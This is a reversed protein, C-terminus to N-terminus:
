REARDTVEFDRKSFTYGYGSTDGRSNLIPLLDNREIREHRAAAQGNVSIKLYDIHASRPESFLAM